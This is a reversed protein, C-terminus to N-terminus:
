YFVIDDVGNYEQILAAVGVTQWPLFTYHGVPCRPYGDPQGLKLRGGCVPCYQYEM